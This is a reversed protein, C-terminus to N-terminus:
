AAARGNDVELYIPPVPRPREIIRRLSAGFARSRTSFGRPCSALVQAVAQDSRELIVVGDGGALLWDVVTEHLRAIPPQFWPPPLYGLILAVGLRRRFFRIDSPRFAVLDVVHHGVLAVQRALPHCIEGPWRGDARVAVIIAWEGAADPEYFDAGFRVRALGVLDCSTVMPRPIGLAKIIQFNDPTVNGIALALERELDFVRERPSARLPSAPSIPTM